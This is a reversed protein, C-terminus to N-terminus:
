QRVSRIDMATANGTKRDFGKLSESILRWVETSRTPKVADPKENRREYNVTATM